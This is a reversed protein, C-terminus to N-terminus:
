AVTAAERVATAALLDREEEGQSVMFGLIVAYVVGFTAYVAATVDNHAQLLRPNVRSRIHAHCVISVEGIAVTVIVLKLMGSIM